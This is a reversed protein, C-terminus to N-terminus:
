LENEPDEPDLIDIEDLPLKPVDKNKLLNKLHEDKSYPSKKLLPAVPLKSIKKNHVINNFIDAFSDDKDNKNIKKKELPLKQRDGLPSLKEIPEVAPIFPLRISIEQLIKSLKM